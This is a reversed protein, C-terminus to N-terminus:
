MEAQQQFPIASASVLVNGIAYVVSLSLITRCTYLLYLPTIIPMAYKSFISTNMKSVLHQM